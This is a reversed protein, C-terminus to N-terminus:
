KPFISDRAFLAAARRTIELEDKLRRVERKLKQIELQAEPLALGKGPTIQREGRLQRIWRDLGSTSIKLQDAVVRIPLGEVLVMDVARSKFESSYARPM